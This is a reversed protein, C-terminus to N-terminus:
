QFFMSSFCIRPYSRISNYNYTFAILRVAGITVFYHKSGDQKLLNYLGMFLFPIFLFATFEGIAFRVYIDMLKYPVTIYLIASLLAIKRRGSVQKTFHYMAIGSLWITLFAFWKLAEAYSNTYLKILLPFFTTIPNYFLNLAYGFGNAFYPSIIPPFQGDEMAQIVGMIRKLHLGGDHTPMIENNKFQFFLVMSIMFLIFYPIISSKKLIIKIKELFTM